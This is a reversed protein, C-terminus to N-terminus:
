GEILHRLGASRESIRRRAEYILSVNVRAISAQEAPRDIGDEMLRLVRQALPDGRSQELLMQIAARATHLTTLEHVPDHSLREHQSKPQDHSEVEQGHVERKHHVRRRRANVCAHLTALLFDFFTPYQAPNFGAYDPDLCRLLAEQAVEEADHLTLKYKRVGLATLQKSAARWNIPQHAITDTM